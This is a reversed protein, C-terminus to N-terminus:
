CTYWQKMDLKPGTAGYRDSLLHGLKVMMKKVTEGKKWEVGKIELRVISGKLEKEGAVGCLSPVAMKKLQSSPGPPAKRRRVWTAWTGSCRNGAVLWCDLLLDLCAADNGVAM